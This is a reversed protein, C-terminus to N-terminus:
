FIGERNKLLSKKIYTNYCFELAKLDHYKEDKIKMGAVMMSHNSAM